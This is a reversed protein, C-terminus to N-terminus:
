KALRLLTSDVKKLDESTRGLKELMKLFMIDSLSGRDVLIRKVEVGKIKATIVLDDNYPAVM